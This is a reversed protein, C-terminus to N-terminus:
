RSEGPQFKYRITLPEGQKVEVTQVHSAFTTNRFEIEYRGPSLELTRMPPSVGRQRGDVFVEGWPLVALSVAVLESADVNKKVAPKVPKGTALKKAPGAGPGNRPPEAPPQLASMPAISEEKPAAPPPTPAVAIPAPVPRPEAMAVKQPAAVSREAVPAAALPRNERAFAGLAVILLATFVTSLRPHAHVGRAVLDTARELLQGVRGFAAFRSSRAHESTRSPIPHEGSVGYVEHERVHKDTRAGEYRFLKSYEASLRSVVEFYSRSILVQGPQSFSMIRQAVNIGDGIINPRLNLDKVLKVPGLNIGTRVSLQQEADRADAVISDRLTLATFLADEPDGLFTIAAGDGTDLVVRDGPAVGKLADRLLENFRERLSLQDAVTRRSYEVMDLFLVSCIITRNQREIM